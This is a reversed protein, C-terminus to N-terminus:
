SDGENVQFCPLQLDNRWMDVVQNRDDLVFEIDFNDAIETNFIEKKVITDKRYDKTKRMWLQHYAISHKELFRITQERFREERGTVLLIQYDKNYYNRLVEAVPENLMDEDCHTADYPDRNHILALTGDLDCLIAKPLDADQQAVPEYDACKQQLALDLEKQMLALERIFKNKIARKMIMQFDTFM